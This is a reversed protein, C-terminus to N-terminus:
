GLLVLNVGVTNVLPTTLVQLIFVSRERPVPVLHHARLLM